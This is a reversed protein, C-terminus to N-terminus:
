IYNLPDLIKIEPRASQYLKLKIGLSITIKTCTFCVM